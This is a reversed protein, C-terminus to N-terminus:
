KVAWLIFITHIVATIMGAGIFLFYTLVVEDLTM